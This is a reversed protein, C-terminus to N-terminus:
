KTKSYSGGIKEINKYLSSVCSYSQGEIKCILNKLILQLPNFQSSSFNLGVKDEVICSKRNRLNQSYIDM